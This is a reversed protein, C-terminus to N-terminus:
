WRTSFNLTISKKGYEQLQNLNKGISNRKRIHTFEKFAFM